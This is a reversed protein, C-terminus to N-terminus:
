TDAMEKLIGKYANYPYYWVAVMGMSGLGGLANLREILVTNAGNRASAIAASLGAVGGGAVIVDVKMSVPIKRESEVIFAMIGRRGKVGACGPAERIRM